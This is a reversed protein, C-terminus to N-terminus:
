VFLPDNYHQNFINKLEEVMDEIECCEHKNHEAILCTACFPIRCDRCFFQIEKRRHKDCVARRIENKNKGIASHDGVASLHQTMTMKMSKHNKQCEKCFFSAEVKGQKEDLCVDRCNEVENMGSESQVAILKEIFCNVSLKSLGGTPIIFEKRCMPCPMTDGKEKGKCYQEICKLCFTHYCPLIKPNCSMETCIPCETIEKVEKALSNKTAMKSSSGIRYPVLM